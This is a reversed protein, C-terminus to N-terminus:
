DSSAESAIKRSKSFFFPVVSSPSSFAVWARNHRSVRSLKIMTFALWRLKVPFLSVPASAGLRRILVTLFFGSLAVWEVESSSSATGTEVVFYDLTSVLGTKEQLETELWGYLTSVGFSLKGRRM